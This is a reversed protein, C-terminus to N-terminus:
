WPEPADHQTPTADWRQDVAIRAAQSSLSRSQDVTQDVNIIYATDGSGPLGPSAHVLEAVGHKYVERDPVEACPAHNVTIRHLDRLGTGAATQHCLRADSQSGTTGCAARDQRNGSLAGPEVGGGYVDLLEVLLSARGQWSRSLRLQPRGQVCSIRWPVSGSGGGWAGVCARTDQAAHHDTTRM